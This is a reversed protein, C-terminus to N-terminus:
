RTSLDGCKKRCAHVAAVSDKIEQLRTATTQHAENMKVELRTELMTIEQDVERLIITKLGFIEYEVGLEAEEKQGSRVSEMKQEVKGVRESM